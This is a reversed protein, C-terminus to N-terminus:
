IVMFTICAHYTKKCNFVIDSAMRTPRRGDAGAISCWLTYWLLDIRLANQYEQEGLTFFPRHPRNWRRHQRDRRWLAPGTYWTRHSRGMDDTEPDDSYVTWSAHKESQYIWIELVICWHRVRLYSWQVDRFWQSHWQGRSLDLEFRYRLTEYNISVRECERPTQLTKNLFWHQRLSCALITM